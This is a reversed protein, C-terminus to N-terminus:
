KPDKDIWLLAGPGKRTEFFQDSGMDIGRFLVWDKNETYEPFAFQEEMFVGESQSDALDLIEKGNLYLTAFEGLENDFVFRIEHYGPMLPHQLVNPPALGARAPIDKSALCLRYPQAGPETSEADRPPLYFEFRKDGIFKPPPSVIDYSEIDNVVLKHVSRKLKVLQGQRRQLESGTQFYVTWIASVTILLLASLLSFSFNRKPTTVVEGSQVESEPKSV